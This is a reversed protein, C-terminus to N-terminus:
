AGNADNSGFNNKYDITFDEAFDIPNDYWVGGVQWDVQDTIRYCNNGLSTADGIWIANLQAFGDISFSFCLLSIWLFIRSKLLVTQGFLSNYIYGM